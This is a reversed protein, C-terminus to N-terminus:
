AILEVTAGKVIVQDAANSVSMTFTVALTRDAADSDVAAVGHIPGVQESTGGIDGQGTAAATQGAAGQFFYMGHLAQVSQSVATLDFEIHWARTDADATFGTSTVDQFMITGGFNIILTLTPTGSNMTMVGGIRVRIIKGSTFMGSPIVVGSNTKDLIHFASSTTDTSESTTTKYLLLPGRTRTARRDTIRATTITTANAPVYVQAIVVDNATRTPPKPSAAATGARCAKTGSSSVVILDIRPNTADAAGVTVNGAAVPKLVGNTLVGGKAVAVTMDPSGQATVACGSLVCDLGDVAAMMIELDEQFLRSQINSEPEGKDPITFAM